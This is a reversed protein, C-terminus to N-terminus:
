RVLGPRRATPAAVVPAGAGAPPEEDVVEIRPTRDPPLQYRHAVLVVEVLREAMMEAVDQWRGAVLGELRYGRAEAFRMCAHAGAVDAASPMFIVARETM